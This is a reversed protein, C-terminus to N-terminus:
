KELSRIEKFRIQFSLKKAMSSFVSFYWWLKTKIKICLCCNWWSTRFIRVPKCVNVPTTQLCCWFSSKHCKDAIQGSNQRCKGYNSTFNLHHLTKLLALYQNILTIVSKQRCEWRTSSLRKITFSKADTGFAKLLAWNPASFGFFIYIEEVM